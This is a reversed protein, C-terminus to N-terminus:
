LETQQTARKKQMNHHSQPFLLDNLQREASYESSARTNFSFRLTQVQKGSCIRLDFGLTDMGIVSAEEAQIGKLRWCLSKLAQTTKEGGAKLRSIINAASHAIADPTAKRFDELEVNIQNGHASILLIKVMELKYFSTGPNFNEDNELDEGAKSEQSTREGHSEGHITGLDEVIKPANSEINSNADHPKSSSESKRKQINSYDETLAPRLLGQIAIGASPQDMYDIPDDSIVEVMKKAFYMPHSSRMTELKAWDGVSEDSDEELDEEEELISVWETDDNDNDEDDNDDNDEDDFDSDEDDIEEIDVNFKSSSLSDMESLLEETDLGIIVQVSNDDATLTEMIDEENKVQFYINGYEDTVYSLDPWFVNEHVEDSVLNSFMLTAKNNVEIITRCSEAPTLWADEGEKLKLEAIDEFPHYQSLKENQNIPSSDADLPEDASARIKNRSM